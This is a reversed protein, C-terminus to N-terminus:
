ELCHPPDPDAIIRFLKDAGSSQFNRGQTLFNGTTDSGCYHCFNLLIRLAPSSDSTAILKKMIKKIKIKNPSSDGLM